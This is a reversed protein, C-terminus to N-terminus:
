YLRNPCPYWRGQVSFRKEDLPVDVGPIQSELNECGALGRGGLGISDILIQTSM